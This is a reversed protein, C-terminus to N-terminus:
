RRAADSVPAMGMPEAASPLGLRSPRQSPTARVINTSVSRSPPSLGADATEGHLADAGYGYASCAQASRPADLPLKACGADSGGGAVGTAPPALVASSCNRRGSSPQRPSRGTGQRGVLRIEVILRGQPELLSEHLLEALLQGGPRRRILGLRTTIPSM